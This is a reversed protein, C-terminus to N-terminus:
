VAESPTEGESIFYLTESSVGDLAEYESKSGVWVSVDRMLNTEVLTKASESSGGSQVGFQAMLDKAKEKTLIFKM